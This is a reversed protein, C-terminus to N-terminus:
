PRFGCSDIDGHVLDSAIARLKRNTHHSRRSLLMFAEDPSVGLKAHLIGKAQEIVARSRLGTHLNAVMRQSTQYITANDVATGGQAAFLIAVDHSSGSFAAKAESYLSMAGSPRRDTRLPLMLCSGFRAQAAARRFAPWRDDADIDDIRRPENYRLAEMAPGEGLQFQLEHLEDIRPDSAAFTMLQQQGEVTLAAATAGPILEVALRTLRGLVVDDDNDEELLRAADSIREAFVRNIEVM